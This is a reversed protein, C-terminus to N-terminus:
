KKKCKLFDSRWIREGRALYRMAPITVCLLNYTSMRLFLSRRGLASSTYSFHYTNNRTHNSPMIEINYITPAYTIVNSSQALQCYPISHLVDPGWSARGIAEKVRSTRISPYIIIRELVCRSRAVKNSQSIDLLHAHLCRKTWGSINQRRLKTSSPV